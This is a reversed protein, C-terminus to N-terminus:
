RAGSIKLNLIQNIDNEVRELSIDIEKGTQEDEWGKPDSWYDAKEFFIQYIEHAKPTGIERVKLGVTNWAQFLTVEKQRDRPTRRDRRDALYSRTLLIANRFAQLAESERQKRQEDRDERIKLLQLIYDVGKLLLAEM